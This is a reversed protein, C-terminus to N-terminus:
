LEIAIFLCLGKVFDYEDTYTKLLTLFEREDNEELKDCLPPTIIEDIEKLWVPRQQTQCEKEIRKFITKELDFFEELSQYAIPKIKQIYNHCIAAVKVEPVSSNIADAALVKEIYDWHEFYLKENKSSIGSLVFELKLFPENIYIANDEAHKFIANLGARGHLPFCWGLVYTLAEALHANLHLQYCLIAASNAALKVFHGENVNTKYESKEALARFAVRKKVANLFDSSDIM